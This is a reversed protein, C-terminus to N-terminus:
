SEEGFRESFAKSLAEVVLDADHGEARITIFCNKQAALMLIGMISRANITDKKYTFEVKSRFRQLLKVIATAPRTHLGLDNRIKVVKKVRKM